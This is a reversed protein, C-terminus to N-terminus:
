ISTLNVGPKSLRIKVCHAGPTAALAQPPEVTVSFFSRWFRQAEVPSTPLVLNDKLKYETFAANCKRFSHKSEKAAMRQEAM